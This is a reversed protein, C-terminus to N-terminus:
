AGVLCIRDQLGLQAGKQLPKGGTQGSGGIRGQPWTQFIRVRQLAGQRNRRDEDFNASCAGVHSDPTGIEAFARALPVIRQSSDQGMAPAVRLAAGYRLHPTRAQWGPQAPACPRTTDIARPGAPGGHRAGAHQAAAPHGPALAARGSCGTPATVPSVGADRRASPEGPGGGNQARVQVVPRRASGGCPATPPTPPQLHWAGGHAALPLLPFARRRTRIQWGHGWMALSDPRPPFRKPPPTLEPCWRTAHTSAGLEARGGIRAAELDGM